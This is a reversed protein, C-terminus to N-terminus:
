VEFGSWEASSDWMGVDARERLFLGAEGPEADRDGHALDRGFLEEAEAVEGVVVAGAFKAESGPLIDNNWVDGVGEKFGDLFGDEFGSEIPALAVDAAAEDGAGAVGIAFERGGVGFFVGAFEGIVELFFEGEILRDVDMEGAARVGAGLMVDAVDAEEAGGDFDGAFGFFAVVDENAAAEAVVFREAALDELADRDFM